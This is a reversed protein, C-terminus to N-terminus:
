LPSGPALVSPLLLSQAASGSVTCGFSKEILATGSVRLTRCPSVPGGVMEVATVLPEAPVTWRRALPTGDPAVAGRGGVDTVGPREASRVALVPVAAARVWVSMMVPVSPLAVCAVVTANVIAAVAGAPIVLPPNSVPLRVPHDLLPADSVTTLVPQWLPLKQAISPEALGVLPSELM